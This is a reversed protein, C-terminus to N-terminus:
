IALEVKFDAWIPDTGLSLDILLSRRYEVDYGNLKFPSDWPNEYSFSGKIGWEIYQHGTAVYRCQSEIINEKFQTDLNERFVPGIFETFM